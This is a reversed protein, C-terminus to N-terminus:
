LRPLCSTDWSLSGPETDQLTLSPLLLWLALRERRPGSLSAFLNNEAQM